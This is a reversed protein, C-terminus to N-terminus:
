LVQQLPLTNDSVTYIFTYTYLVKNPLNFIVKAQDMCDVIKAYKKIM